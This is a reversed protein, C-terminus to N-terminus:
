GSIGCVNGLRRHTYSPSRSGAEWELCERGVGLGGHAPCWRGLDEPPLICLSSLHAGPWTSEHSPLPSFLPSPTNPHLFADETRPYWM